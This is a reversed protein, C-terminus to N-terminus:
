NTDPTKKRIVCSHIPEADVEIIGLIEVTEQNHLFCKYKASLCNGEEGNSDKAYLYISVQVFLMTSLKWLSNFEAAITFCGDKHVNIRCKFSKWETLTM